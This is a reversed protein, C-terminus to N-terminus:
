GMEDDGNLEFILYQAEILINDYFDQGDEESMEESVESFRAMTYSLGLLFWKKQELLEDDPESVKLMQKARQWEKEILDTNM